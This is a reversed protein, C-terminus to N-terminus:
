VAQLAVPPSRLELAGLLDGANTQGVEYRVEAMLQAMEADTVAPDEGAATREASVREATKRVVVATILASLQLPGAFPDCLEWGTATGGGILLQVMNIDATLLTEDTVVIDGWTITWGNM